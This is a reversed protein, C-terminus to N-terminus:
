GLPCFCTEDDTQDLVFQVAAGRLTSNDALASGLYAGFRIGTTACDLPLFPPSQRMDLMCCIDAIIFVVHVM